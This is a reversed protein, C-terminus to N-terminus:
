WREVQFPRRRRLVQQHSSRHAHQEREDPGAQTTEFGAGRIAAAEGRLVSSASSRSEGERRQCATRLTTPEAHRDRHSGASRRERRWFGGFHRLWWRGSLRRRGARRELLRGGKVIRFLERGGRRYFLRRRARRGTLWRRSWGHESQARKRKPPPRRACSRATAVFSVQGGGVRAEASSSWARPPHCARRAHREFSLLQM